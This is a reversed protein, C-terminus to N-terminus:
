GNKAEYFRVTADIIEDWPTPSLGFTTQALSSDMVFDNRFQYDTERFEKMM